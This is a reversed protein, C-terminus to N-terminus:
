FSRIWSSLIIHSDNVTNIFLMNAGISGAKNRLGILARTKQRMTDEPPGYGSNTVINKFECNKVNEESNIVQVNRGHENLNKSLSSACSILFLMLLLTLIKM